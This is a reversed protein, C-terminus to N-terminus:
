PLPSHALRTHTRHTVEITDCLTNATDKLELLLKKAGADDQSERLEDISERLEFIEMQLARCTLLFLILPRVM